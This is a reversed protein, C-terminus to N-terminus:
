NEKFIGLQKYKNKYVWVQNGCDFIKRYGNNYMNETETLNPDFEKLKDKLKHKQFQIRSYLTIDGSRFYYYNPNSDHIHKFELQKYLNGNSRRKDAYSVINVINNNKIFYKFLRSAGGVVTFGIKNCFRLLEWDYKKSYRSKGFTMLSVLENKYYLGLNISSPCKGQLHNQILFMDKEASIVTRIECKRAYISTSVKLINRIISKWIEQKTPNIWENEFIHLLQIGQKYCKETKYLHYNPLETDTSCFSHWYLGNYEIALKHNPIYIDLELPPIIQRSNSMVINTFKNCFAVINNEEKSKIFPYCHTCHMNQYSSYRIHGCKKHKYLIKKNNQSKYEDESTLIEYDDFHRKILTNYYLKRKNYKSKIGVEQAKTLGSEPNIKSLIKSVKKGIEQYGTLETEPNIKSLIENRKLSAIQAKTLGTDNDIINLSIGVKKGRKKAISLGSEPNIKSVIKSVKKGIDQYGTLGTEPNIKSLIENRKLSAIQAKTLGTDNDVTNLSISVKKGIEQYKTLGTEPNIKSQHEKIKIMRKEAISLGTEPNIKSITKSVKKGIEQYGTLGTKPNIKSLTKKIKLSNIKSLPLGTKDDIRNKACARSCAKIRNKRYDVHVANKKCVPCLLQEKISHKIYWLRENFNVDLIIFPTKSIIKKKNEEKKLFKRLDFTM